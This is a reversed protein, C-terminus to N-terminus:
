RWELLESWKIKTVAGLALLFFGCQVAWGLFPIFLLFFYVVAGLTITKWSLERQSRRKFGKDLQTGLLIPAVLGSVILMGAYGLLGLAGLPVGVVTILLLVSVVPLVILVVLGRGIEALPEAFAQKMVLTTFRRFYLGFILAGALLMLFKALAFLTFFALLASKLANGSYAKPTYTVAGSVRAGSEMVARQTAKYNLNGSIIAASGLTVKGADAQVNGGVPADIYLQGGMFRINGTVPSDIRLTGGTVVVDRGVQGGTIQVMGGAAVIDNQVAGGFTVNGGAARVSGGVNGLLTLTGGVANVDNSVGGTVLITGGAATLGGQITGSSTVSGGAMYLDNNIVELKGVTAENGGRLEAAFGVAPVLVLATLVAVSAGLTRFSTSM